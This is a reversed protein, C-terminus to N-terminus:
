LVGKILVFELLKELGELLVRKSNILVFFEYLLQYFVDDFVSVVM